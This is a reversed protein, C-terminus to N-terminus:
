PYLKVTYNRSVEGEFRKYPRPPCCRKWVKRSRETEDPVHELIVLRMEHRKRKRM